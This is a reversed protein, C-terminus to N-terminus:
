RPIQRNSHYIYEYILDTDGLIELYKNRFDPRVRKFVSLGLPGTARIMSFPSMYQALKIIIRIFLSHQLDENRESFGWPDALILAKVNQPYKLAYSSSLFGGFSHGLLIMDKIGLEKRWEDISDIFEEEAKVPDSSFAPRSSRGFGLV